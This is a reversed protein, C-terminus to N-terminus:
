TTRFELALRGNSYAIIPRAGPEGNKSTKNGEDKWIGAVALCGTAKRKHMRNLSVPHINGRGSVQSLRDSHVVFM